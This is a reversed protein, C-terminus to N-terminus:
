GFSENLRGADRKGWRNSLDYDGLLTMVREVLSDQDGRCVVFGTEGDDVLFPVDGVDTAVVARGCAMAEM